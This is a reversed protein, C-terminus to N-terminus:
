EDEEYDYLYYKNECIPCVYKWCRNDNKYGQINEGKGLDEDCCYIKVRRQRLHKKLQERTNEIQADIDLKLEEYRKLTNKLKIIEDNM